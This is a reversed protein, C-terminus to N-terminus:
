GMPTITIVSWIGDPGHRVFQNLVIWYEHGRFRVIVDTEPRTDEGVHATPAAPVTAPNVLTIPAGSFGDQPLLRLTASVPNLYITDARNGADAGRQIQRLSSLSYYVAGTHPGISTVAPTSPLSTPSTTPAATPLPTRTVLPAPTRQTLPPSAAAVAVLLVSALLVIIRTM